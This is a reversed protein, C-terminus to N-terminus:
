RAPLAHTDRLLPVLREAVAFGGFLVATFFLDGALSNQFFPVAAVYCAVLGGVTKPYMDSFAWVSFNTILFFLVSGGVAAFAVRSASRRPSILCGLWVVLAVSGYVIVMLSHFGLFIDSLFLAGLPILFKTAGRGLFAGSFLAMASIPSFNPPHPVLRMGAAILIVAILAATRADFGFNAEKMNIM